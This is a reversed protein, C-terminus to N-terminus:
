FLIGLGLTFTDVGNKTLDLGGKVYDAKLSLRPGSEDSRNLLTLEAGTKFLWDRGSPGRLDPLYHYEASLTLGQCFTPFFLRLQITPGLRFFDDRGLPNRTSDRMVTGYEGHLWARLQYGATIRKPDDYKRNADYLIEGVYGLSWAPDFFLQPEADFEGAPLQLDGRTDTAYSFSGRVNLRAHFGQGPKGALLWQGFVGARFVLSDTESQPDGNTTIRDISISPVFGYYIPSLGYNLNGSWIMPVILAAHAAWTDTHAKGDWAYSFTAGTLDSFKGATLGRQSPDEAALVDTYDHRLLPHTLAHGVVDWGERPRAQVETPPSYSDGGPKTGPSRLDLIPRVLTLAYRSRRGFKEVVEQLASKADPHLKQHIASFQALEEYSLFDDAAELTGPLCLSLSLGIALGILRLFYTPPSIM